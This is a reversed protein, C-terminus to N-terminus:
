WIYISPVLHDIYRQANWYGSYNMTAGFSLLFTKIYEKKKCIKNLAIDHFNSSYYDMFLIIVRELVRHWNGM